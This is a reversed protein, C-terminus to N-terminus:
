CCSRAAPRQSSVSLGGFIARAAILLVSGGLAIASLQM